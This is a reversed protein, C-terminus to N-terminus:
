EEAARFLLLMWIIFGWSHLGYPTEYVELLSLLSFTAIVAAATMLLWSPLVPLRNFWLPLREHMGCM